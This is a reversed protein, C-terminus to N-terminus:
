DQKAISLNMLFMTLDTNKFTRSYVRFIYSQKVRKNQQHEPIIEELVKM